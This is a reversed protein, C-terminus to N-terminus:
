ENEEAPQGDTLGTISAPYQLRSARATRSRVRVPLTKMVSPKADQSFEGQNQAAAM